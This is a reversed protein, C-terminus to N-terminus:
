REKIADLVESYVKETFETVVLSEIRGQYQYGHILKLGNKAIEVEGDVIHYRLSV